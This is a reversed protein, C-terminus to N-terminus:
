AQLTGCSDRVDSRLFCRAHRSALEPAGPTRAVARPPFVVHSHARRSTRWHVIARVIASFADAEVRVIGRLDFRLMETEPPMALAMAEARIAAEVSLVGCVYVTASRAHAELAVVSEM